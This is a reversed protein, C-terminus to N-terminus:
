WHMGSVISSYSTAMPNVSVQFSLNTGACGWDQVSAVQIVNSLAKEMPWKAGELSGLFPVELGCRQGSDGTFIPSCCLLTDLALSSVM